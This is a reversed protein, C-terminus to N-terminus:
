SEEFSFEDAQVGSARELRADSDGLAAARVVLALERAAASPRSDLCKRQM